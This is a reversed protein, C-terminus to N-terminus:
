VQLCLEARYKTADVNFHILFEVGYPSGLNERVKCNQCPVQQAGFEKGANSRSSDIDDLKGNSKFSVYVPVCIPLAIFIRMESM